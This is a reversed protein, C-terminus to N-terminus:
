GALLKQEAGILRQAPLDCEARYFHERLGLHEVENQDITMGLPDDRAIKAGPFNISERAIGNNERGTTVAINKKKRRIGTTAVDGGGIASVFAAREKAIRAESLNMGGADGYGTVM